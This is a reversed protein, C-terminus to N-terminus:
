DVEALTASLAGLGTMERIAAPGQVSPDVARVADVLLVTAFGHSLADRVTNLVCYDTALGGVFVRSIGEAQLKPGLGTGAFASYADLGSQAAKHEVLATPPLALGAAFGAGASGAICHPPWPGGQAVFSCHDPPHWDASAIVPRGKETFRRIYQNLVPIIEDGGAVALAGGPLFDNQVDVLLLADGAAITFRLM